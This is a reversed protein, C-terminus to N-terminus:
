LKGRFQELQQMLNNSIDILAEAFGRIADNREQFSVHHLQTFIDLVEASVHKLYRSYDQLEGKPADKIHIIKDAVDNLNMPIKHLLEVIATDKAAINSDRPDNKVDEMVHSLQLLQGRTVRILHSM